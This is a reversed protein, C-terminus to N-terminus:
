SDQRLLNKLTSFSSASNRTSEKTRKRRMESFESLEKSLHSLKRMQSSLPNLSLKRASNFILAPQSEKRSKRPSAPPTPSDPRRSSRNSLHATSNLAGQSLTDLFHMSQLNFLQVSRELMSRSSTLVIENLPLFYKVLTREGTAVVGCRSPSFSTLISNKALHIALEIFQRHLEKVTAQLGEGFAEELRLPVHAYYLDIWGQRSDEERRLNICNRHSLTKLKDVKERILAHESSNRYHIRKKVL